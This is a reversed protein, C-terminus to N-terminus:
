PPTTSEAVLRRATAWLDDHSQPRGWVPDEMVKQLTASTQHRADAPHRARWTLLVPKWAEKVEPWQAATWLTAWADAIAEQGRPYVAPLGPERSHQRHWSDLCHGAEHAMVWAWGQTATGPKGWTGEFTHAIWMQNPYWLVICVQGDQGNMRLPVLAASLGHEVADPPSHLVQNRVFRRVIPDDMRFVKIPFPVSGTDMLRRAAENLRPAPDVPPFVVTGALAASLLWSTLM